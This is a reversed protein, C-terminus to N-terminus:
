RVAVLEPASRQPDDARAQAIQLLAFYYKARDNAALAENVLAPLLLKPEGLADIIRTKDTM